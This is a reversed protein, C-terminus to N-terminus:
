RGLKLPSQGTRIKSEPSQRETHLSCLPAVARSHTFYLLGAAAAASPRGGRPSLPEGLVGGDELRLPHQFQSSGSQLDAAVIYLAEEGLAWNSEWCPKHVLSSHCATGPGLAM